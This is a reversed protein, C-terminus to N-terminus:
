EEKWDPRCPADADQQLEEPYGPRSSKFRFTLTRERLVEIQQAVASRALFSDYTEKLYKFALPHRHLDAPPRQM